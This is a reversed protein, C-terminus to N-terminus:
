RRAIQAVQRAGDNQAAYLTVNFGARKAAALADDRLRQQYDNDLSRLFLAIGRRRM